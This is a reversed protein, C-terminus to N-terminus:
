GGEWVGLVRLRVREALEEATNRGILDAVDLRGVVARAVQRLTDEDLKIAEAGGPEGGGPEAAGEQAPAPAGGQQQGQQQQEQQSGEGQQQQSGEGQQQQSGEQQQQQGQQQQAALEAARAMVEPMRRGLVERLVPM